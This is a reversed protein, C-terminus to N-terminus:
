SLASLQIFRNSEKLRAKILITFSKVASGLILSHYADVPYKKSLYSLKKRTIYFFRFRLQKLLLFSQFFMQMLILPWFAPYSSPTHAGERAGHPVGM